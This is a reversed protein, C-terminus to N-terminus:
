AFEWYYGKHYASKNRCCRSICGSDFGEKTADLACDYHKAGGDKVPRAIVAKSTSHDKGFKGKASGKRGLKAYAHNHNESSTVWELNEARNDSRIGNLHNVQNAGGKKECFAEAVLRHISYAKKNSLKVQSYGTNKIAWHKLILGVSSRKLSKILGDDSVAYDNDVSVLVWKRDGM